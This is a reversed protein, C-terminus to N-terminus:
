CIFTEIYVPGSWYLVHSKFLYIAAIGTLIIGVLSSSIGILRSARKVMKIGKMELVTQKM